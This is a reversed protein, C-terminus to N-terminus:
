KVDGQPAATPAPGSQALQSGELVAIETNLFGIAGLLENVVGEIIPEEVKIPSSELMLVNKAPKGNSVFSATLHDSIYQYVQRRGKAKALNDMAEKLTTM